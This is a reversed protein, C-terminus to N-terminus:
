RLTYKIVRSENKWENVMEQAKNRAYTETHGFICQTDKARTEGTSRKTVSVKIDTEKIDIEVDFMEEENEEEFYSEFDEITANTKNIQLDDDWEFEASEDIKDIDVRMDLCRTVANELEDKLHELYYDGHSDTLYMVVKFVNAM